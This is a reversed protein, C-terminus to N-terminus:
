RSRPARRWPSGCCRSSRRTTGAPSRRRPRPWSRTATRSWRTRRCAAARAASTWPAGAPTSACGWRRPPTSRPPWCTAPRRPPLRLPPGHEDHLRHPGARGARRPRRRAGGRRRHPGLGPVARGALRVPRRGPGAGAHGVPLPPPPLQGPGPTALRGRGDLRRTGARCRRRAGGGVAAIRAGEVLIWGEAHETGAEDVTAVACGEILTASVPATTRASALRVADLIKEYGTCRCLNGALAERIEGDGPSPRRRLLDHAAMSSGRRASAASCPAPRSSPRSCRTCGRATPWARWPSCRAARPRARRAGPLRLGARRRPLGLVLRM